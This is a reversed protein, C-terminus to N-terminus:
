FFQPFKGKINSLYFMTKLVKSITSSQTEYQQVYNKTSKSFSFQNLDKFKYPLAQWLDIAM